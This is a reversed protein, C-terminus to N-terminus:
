TLTYYKGHQKITTMFPLKDSYERLQKMVVASSTFMVFLPADDSERFQIQVCEKGPTVRSALFRVGHIQIETGLLGRIERKEGELNNPSSKAFDSFKRM